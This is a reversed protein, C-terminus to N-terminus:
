IVSSKRLSMNVILIIIGVANLKKSLLLRNVNKCARFNSLLWPIRDFFHMGERPMGLNFILIEM